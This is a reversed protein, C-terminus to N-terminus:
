ACRQGGYRAIVANLMASQTERAADIQQGLTDCMSMLQDIKAVIRHQEAIPPLPYVYFRVSNASLNPQASGNDFRLIQKRGLPGILYYYMYRNSSPHFPRVIMLSSAIGGETYPDVIATKGFTAGRLCYVMDGSQIKGGNLSDFKKRTIYYMERKTLTGDPEIHGTNIWPVGQPVYEERNPYNKGRDGNIFEALLGFYVWTWGQPLDYPCEDPNVPPLPKPEKLKGAKVLRKKEADIQKLLDSAPADNPDQPVLKGMVAIQLIANRLETVNEKVTYLEGFHQGLFESAQIHGDSDKVNLLQRVAAAHVALRKTDRKARLNELADCRAMLEDIKAVITTQELLPPLLVQLEYAENRNLGPKIGKGLSDLGLSRLLWFAFVLDVGKPPICYYAVDTVCCGSTRCLNLAGASGKRGIIICPKHVFAVNHTGVVGNSGYVPYEGSESRKPAPLNDGYEFSLIGGLSQAKWGSPVDQPQDARGKLRPAFSCEGKGVGIKQGEEGGAKSLPRGGVTEPTIQPVLKGLMALTLILERLKKIGDPADFATDFHRELLEM